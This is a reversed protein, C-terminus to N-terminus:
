KSYPTVSELLIDKEHNTLLGDAVLKELGAEQHLISLSTDQSMWFLAHAACSNRATAKLLSESARTYRGSRSDRKASCALLLNIDHLRHQISRCTVIQANWYSYSVNLFFTLTFTTLSIMYNWLINVCALRRFFTNDSPTAFLAWQARAITESPEAFLPSQLWYGWDWGACAFRLLFCTFCSILVMQVLYPWIVQFITGKWQRWLWTGRTSYPAVVSCSAETRGVRRAAKELEEEEGVGMERHRRPFQWSVGEEGEKGMSGSRQDASRLRVRNRSFMCTAMGSQLGDPCSPSGRICTQLLHPSFAQSCQAIIVPLALIWRHNRGGARCAM